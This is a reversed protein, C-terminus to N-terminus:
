FSEAPKRQAEVHKAGVTTYINGFGRDFRSGIGLFAAQGDNFKWVATRSSFKAGMANQKEVAEIEAPKGLKQTLAQLLSDQSEAGSTSYTLGEIVGAVVLLEVNGVGKPSQSPIIEVEFTEGKPRGYDSDPSLAHWCPFTNKDSSYDYVSSVGYPFTQVACEKINFTDGLKVGLFDRPMPQLAPARSLAKAPKKPAASLQASMCAIAVLALLFRKM